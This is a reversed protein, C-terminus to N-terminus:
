VAIPIQIALAHNSSAFVCAITALQYIQQHKGSGFRWILHHRDFCFGGPQCGSAFGIWALQSANVTPVRNSPEFSFRSSM